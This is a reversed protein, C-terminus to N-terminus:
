SRAKRRSRARANGNTQRAAKFRRGLEVREQESLADYTRSLVKDEFALHKRLASVLDSILEDYDASSEAPADESYLRAFLREAAREQDLGHAALAEGDQLRERVAPWFVSSETAEHADLRDRLAALAEVRRRLDDPTGGSTAGPLTQLQQQLQRLVGHERGIVNVVDDAAAAGDDSEGSEDPEPAAPPVVPHVAWATRLAPDSAARKRM